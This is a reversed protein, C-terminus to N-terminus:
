TLVTPPRDHRRSGALLALAAVALAISTPEPVATGVGVVVAGNRTTVDIDSLASDLLQVNSLTLGTAGDRLAHFTFTEIVGDGFSGPGAGVLGGINFSITGALNDVADASFFTPGTAALFTGEVAADARLVQPDFTLDFQFAYLDAVNGVSVNITFDSGSSVAASAVSLTVPTAQSVSPFLSLAAGFWIALAWVASQRFDTRLAHFLGPQHTMQM